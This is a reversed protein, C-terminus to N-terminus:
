VVRWGWRALLMVGGLLRGLAAAAMKLRKVAAKVAAVRPDRQM